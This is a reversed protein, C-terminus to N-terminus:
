DLSVLHSLADRGTLTRKTFNDSHKLTHQWATNMYAHNNSQITVKKKVPIDLIISTMALFYM